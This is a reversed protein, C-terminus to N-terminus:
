LPVFYSLESSGVLQLTLTDASVSIIQLVKPSDNNATIEIRNGDLWRWHGQGAFLGASWEYFEREGDQESLEFASYIANGRVFQWSGLLQTKDIPASSRAALNASQKSNASHPAAPQPPNAARHDRPAASASQTQPLTQQDLRPQQTPEQAQTIPQAYCGGACVSGLLLALGRRRWAAAFVSVDSLQAAM